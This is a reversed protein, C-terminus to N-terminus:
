WRSLDFAKRGDLTVLVCLVKHQASKSMVLRVVDFVEDM